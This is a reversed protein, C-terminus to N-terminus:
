RQDRTKNKKIINVWDELSLVQVYETALDSHCYSRRKIIDDYLEKGTQREDQLSEVVYIKNFRFFDM